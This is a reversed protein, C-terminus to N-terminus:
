TRWTPYEDIVTIWQKKSWLFLERSYISIPLAQHGSFHFGNQNRPSKFYNQIQFGIPTPCLRDLHHVKKFKRRGWFELDCVVSIIRVFHYIQHYIKYDLSLLFIIPVFNVVNWYLYLLMNKLHQKSCQLPTSNRHRVLGVQSKKRGSLYIKCPSKDASLQIESFYLIMINWKATLRHCCISYRGPELSRALPVRTSGTEIWETISGQNNPQSKRVQEWSNIM